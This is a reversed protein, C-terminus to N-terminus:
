RARPYIALMNHNHDFCNKRGTKDMERIRFHGNRSGFHVIFTCGKSACKLHGTYPLYPGGNKSNRNGSPKLIARFGYTEPFKSVAEKFSHYSPWTGEHDIRTNVTAAPSCSAEKQQSAGSGQQESVGKCEEFMFYSRSCDGECEELRQKEPPATQSFPNQQPTQQPPRLPVLTPTANLELAQQPTEQSAAAPEAVEAMLPESEELARRKVARRFLDYEDRIRQKEEEYESTDILKGDYEAKTSLLARKNARADPSVGGEMAAAAPSMSSTAAPSVSLSLKLSSLQLCQCISGKTKKTDIEAAKKPDTAADPYIWKREVYEPREGNEFRDAPTLEHKCRQAENYEALRGPCDCSKLHLLFRTINQRGIGKIGAGDDVETATEGAEWTCVECRLEHEPICGRTSLLGNAVNNAEVFAQYQARVYKRSARKRKVSPSLNKTKLNATM